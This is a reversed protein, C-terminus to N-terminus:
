GSVFRVKAFYKYATNAASLPPPLALVAALGLAARGVLGRSGPLPTM